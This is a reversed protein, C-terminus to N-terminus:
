KLIGNLVGKVALFLIILIVIIILITILNKIGLNFDGKKM